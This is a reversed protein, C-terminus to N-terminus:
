VNAMMKYGNKSIARVDELISDLDPIVTEHLDNVIRVVTDVFRKYDNKSTGNTEIFGTIAQERLPTLWVDYHIIGDSPVDLIVALTSEHNQETFAVGKHPWDTIGTSEFTSPLANEMMNYVTDLANISVTEEFTDVTRELIKM